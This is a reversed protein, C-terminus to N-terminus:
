NSNFGRWLWRGVLWAPLPLLAMLIPFFAQDYTLQPVAYPPQQAVDVVTHAAVFLWWLEWPILVVIALRRLGRKVNM